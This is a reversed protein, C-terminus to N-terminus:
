WAERGQLTRISNWSQNIIENSDEFSHWICAVFQIGPIMIASLKESVILYIKYILKEM